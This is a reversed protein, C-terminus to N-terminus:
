WGPADADMMWFYQPFRYHLALWKNDYRTSFADITRPAAAFAQGFGKKHCSACSWIPTTSCTHYTVVTFVLFVALSLPFVLWRIWKKRINGRDALPLLCLGVLLIVPIWFVGVMEMEEQFYRTVQFFMMYLWDPQPVSSTTVPDAIDQKQIGFAALAFLLTTTGALTAAARPFRGCLFPGPREPDTKKTAM